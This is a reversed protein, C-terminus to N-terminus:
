YKLISAGYNIRNLHYIHYVLNPKCNICCRYDMLDIYERDINHIYTLCKDVNSAEPAISHLYQLVKKHQFYAVSKMFCYDFRDGNQYLFKIIDLDWEHSIKSISLGNQNVLKKAVYIRKLNIALKTNNNVYFIMDVLEYPLGTM